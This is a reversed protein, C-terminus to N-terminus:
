GLLWYLSGHMLELAGLTAASILWSRWGPVPKTNDITFEKEEFLLGAATYRM